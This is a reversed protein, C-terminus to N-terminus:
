LGNEQALNFFLSKRKCHLFQETLPLLNNRKLTLSTLPSMLKPTQMVLVLSEFDILSKEDNESVNILNVINEAANM